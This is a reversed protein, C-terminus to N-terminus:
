EVIIFNAPISDCLWVIGEKYFEIGNYSADRASITLILPNATKRGAVRIAQAVDSSLHVHLRNMKKLGEIKIKDFNDNCTGHYLFIPPEIKTRKIGVNTTHGYLARIRQGDLEHRKKGSINIASVLDSYVIGSYEAHNMAINLLLTNVNGWGENDLVICYKEPEHRLAASIIKSLRQLKM